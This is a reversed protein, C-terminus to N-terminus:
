QYKKLLEEAAKKIRNIGKGEYMGLECYRIFKELTEKNEIVGLLTELEQIHPYKQSLRVIRELVQLCCILSHWYDSHTVIGLYGGHIIDCRKEYLHLIVTPIYGSGQGILVQRLAMVWGKPEKKRNPLLLIELATCLNVLKYDLNDETIAHSIWEKARMVRMQIDEPLKNDLIHKWINDDGLSKAVSEGLDITLPSVNRNGGIAWQTGDEPKVKPIAISSGLEWLFMYEYSKSLLEKRVALRLTNLVSKVITEGSAIANGIESAEVQVRAVTKGEWKNSIDSKKFGLSQLYDATLEFVEVSGLTFHRKGVSFHMIEYIVDFTMLPKKVENSFDLTKSQLNGESQFYAKNLAVERFLQWLKGYLTQADIHSPVLEKQLEIMAQWFKERLEPNWVLAIDWIPADTQSNLYGVLRRYEKYNIGAKLLKQVTSQCLLETM